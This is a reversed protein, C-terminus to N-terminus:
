GLQQKLQNTHSAHSNGGRLSNAHPMFQLLYQVPGVIRAPDISNPVGNFALPAKTLPDFLKQKSGYKDSFNGNREADSPVVRDQVQQTNYLTEQM